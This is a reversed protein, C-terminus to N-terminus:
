IYPRRAQQKQTSRKGGGGILSVAVAFKACPWNRDLKGRAATLAKKQRSGLGRVEKKWDCATVVGM